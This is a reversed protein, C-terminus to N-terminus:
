EYIAEEQSVKKKTIKRIVDRIEYHGFIGMPRTLMFGILALSYIVMRLDIGVMFYVPLGDSGTFYFQDTIGQLERLAERLITLFGGAFVAGTVSGMGGMVVMIIMEFSRNIDFTTPSIFRLFHAFLGGGIGGLFAALVFAYVKTNTTNVGMSRAAIEDERVSLFARGQATKLIRWVIFITFLTFSYVWGFTSLFPISPIGRAGGLFNLNLLIVRVIEGFGLTVIALYDGSLRLSPLGVIYGAAAAVLGGFFLTGVFVFQGTAGVLLEPNTSQFYTTLGAAGYAGLAMFGAHGMSFQGTFGNVLNLSTAMIINIGAYMIVTFWYPNISDVFFLDIVWVLIFAVLWPILTKIGGKM